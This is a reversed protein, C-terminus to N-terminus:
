GRHREPLDSVGVRRELRVILGFLVMFGTQLMDAVALAEDAVEVLGAVLGLQVACFLRCLQGLDFRHARLISM